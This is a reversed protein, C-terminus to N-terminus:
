HNDTSPIIKRITKEDNYNSKDNKKRGCRVAIGLKNHVQLIIFIILM